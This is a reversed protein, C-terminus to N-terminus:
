SLGFGAAWGGWSLCSEARVASNSIETQLYKLASATMHATPAVANTDRERLRNAMCDFTLDTVCESSLKCQLWFHFVAGQSYLWHYIDMCEATNGTCDSPVHLAWSSSLNEGASNEFDSSNATRAFSLNRSLDTYKYTPNIGQMWLTLGGHPQSLERWISNKIYTLGRGKWDAEKWSNHFFILKKDLLVEWSQSQFGLFIVLFKM